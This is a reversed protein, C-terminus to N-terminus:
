AISLGTSHAIFALEDAVLAVGKSVARAGHGVEAEARILIPRPSSTSNQLEACLKRAHLPDVRSDGDFVTFLVSPYETNARVHHYPSYSYLWGFEEAVAASGYEVNWTAGLGHLEYRVMDLLPASCVVAAFLDPRQVTAAGVLLGGNSGGSIALKDRTTWGHTILWEAAYEFDDFVNQKKSLMGDRHWDEGEEGGGRINAVAYVGGSEVWSLIEASYGPNLPVGFGGYGYLITPRPNDPAETPSIIFMRVQTGDKSTYTVQQSHVEPTPLVGPPLAWQTVEHTRADFKFVSSQRVHDSYTFWFEPGGEPRESVGGISGAGPLAITNLITGDALNRITLESVTHRTHIALLLPEPIEPGDLIVYGVLVAEPDEPILDVWTDPTPNLPSTVCLRGMPAEYDTSVYVRDDRGVSFDASADIDGFVRRLKPQAPDCIDLDAWYIENRPATGEHTTIELWRGNRSVAVGYYNTKILGEGFIEVDSDANQGVTHLYVRRHYQSEDSPVLEPALRRVYYFQKEGLLWAVPSYRARDIPGDIVTGTAIDMVYLSSEESGGVSIQYALLNGEKTPQWSDLTTTGNPDLAMPDILVRESGDPDITYLIAHEQGAERKMFFQRQGRWYPASIMGASVYRTIREVWHAHTDWTARHQEFLENQAVSWTKTEPSNEDELWRYPDAVAQGHITEVLDQRHAKPYDPLTM